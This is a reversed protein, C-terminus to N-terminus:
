ALAAAAVADTILQADPLAAPRGAATFYLRCTLAPPDDPGPPVIDAGDIRITPSGIFHEREADDQTVMQLTQLDGPALGAATMAEQVMAKARPHSPCGAWWLLEITPASM